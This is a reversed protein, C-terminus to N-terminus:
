PGLVVRALRATRAWRHTPLTFLGGVLSKAGSYEGFGTLVRERFGPLDSLSLPYGPMIGEERADSGRLREALPPRAVVPFRLYGATGGAPVDPIGFEAGGALASRLAAATVRRVDSALPEVVIAASLLGHGAASLGRPPSPVHYPTEGLGLFRLGTPLWYWGPRGLGWQLLSIALGKLGSGGRVLDRGAAVVRAALWEAHCLLAGGGGATLGKGRGFSLIALDGHSGM